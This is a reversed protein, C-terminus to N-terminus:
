LAVYANNDMVPPILIINCHNFILKTMVTCVCECYCCDEQCCCIVSRWRKDPGCSDNGFATPQLDHGWHPDRQHRDLEWSARLSCFSNYPKHNLSLCSCYCGKQLHVSCFLAVVCLGVFGCMISLLQSYTSNFYLAKFPRHLCIYWLFHTPFINCM